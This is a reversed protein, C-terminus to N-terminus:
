VANTFLEMLIDWYMHLAIPILISRSKTFTIGFIVALIILTVFSFSSLVTTLTGQAIWKPFHILVFLIGNAILCIWKKDERYTLNLLLGRFVMEETLGVFTMAIVTCVTFTDNIRFGNGRVITNVAVFVTFALFYPVAEAWDKKKCHFMEKLPIYVEDGLKYLIIVAPLTWCLNKILVSKIVQKVVPDLSTSDICPSALIGYLAWVTYFVICFVIAIILNKKSTREM